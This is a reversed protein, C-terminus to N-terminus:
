PSSAELCHRRIYRRLGSDLQEDYYRQARARTEPTLNELCSAILEYGDQLVHADEPYEDRYQALLRRLGAADKVDMAGNLDGILNNERFIRAHQATIPHPVMGQADAVASTAPRIPVGDPTFDVPTTQQPPARQPEATRAVLAPGPLDPPTAAPRLAWWALAVLILAAL